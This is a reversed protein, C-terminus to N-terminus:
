SRAALKQRIASSPVPDSSSILWLALLKCLDGGLFSPRQCSFPPPAPFINPVNKRTKENNQSKARRLGNRPLSFRQGFGELFITGSFRRHTKRKKPLTVYNGAHSDYLRHIPLSHRSKQGRRRRGGTSEPLAVTASGVCFSRERLDNIEVILASIERDNKGAAGMVSRPFNANQGAAM